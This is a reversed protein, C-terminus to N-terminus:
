NLEAQLNLRVPNMQLQKLLQPSAWSNETASGDLNHCTNCIFPAMKFRLNFFICVPTRSLDNQM